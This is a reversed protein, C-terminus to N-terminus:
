RPHPGGGRNLIVDLVHLSDCMIGTVAVAGIGAVQDNVANLWTM